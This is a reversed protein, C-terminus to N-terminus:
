ETRIARVSYPELGELSLARSIVEAQHKKFMSTHGASPAAMPVRCSYMLHMSSPLFKELRSRILFWAGQNKPEEQCWELETANSYSALITKVADYPFPYLQEIRIIAIHNLQHERRKELLEYYVKGSCAIVRTVCSSDIDDIESLVPCFQSHSLDELPSVALKHRLLSKPTMVILPVRYSRIMQRRLLHFIQAPTTPVCVQINEQAALQLYRELRASSHEPGMGEYGHPLLMVLGSLRQWKQWASAIFQDIIVQAVNAFDGFQAEWLVLTKPNTMSYGYEFGLAGTESLVSDCNTFPTNYQKAIQALPTHETGTHQDFLTAHRHFFTGRRADEGVLRVGFGDKLLTAYALTEAMGWDLMMEGQAMKQRALLIKKVNRHLDCNEPVTSLRKGLDQLDEEIVTTDAFVSWDQHFYPAWNIEFDNSSRNPVTQVMSEGHDLRERIADHKQDLAAQSVIQKKMLSDAFLARVGPHRDVAHYMLPQTVRPEDVEQHGHRRFGILDVVVDKEFKLRYELALRMIKVAMVPDDANVHFIPAEISKAPGTCYFSSRSDHPNHTTFGVQNNTIIHITGGIDYARTKSMNLSETVIGQGVFAADGHLLVLLAYDTQVKHNFCDQKARAAGMAVPNVFELHSPNFMMSFHIPGSPTVVDSSYGQHYKVDGSLNGHDINGDFIQYLSQPPQGLVNVLVNLRGRHAMGIKVEEFGGKKAQNALDNLMPIVTELGEISFRKQGPYKVDLYKEFGEAVSLADLIEVSQEDEFGAQLNPDEIKNLLWQQEAESDIHMLEVGVSQCYIQQLASFIASLSAEEGPLVGRSLYTQSSNVHGLNHYELTLRPDPKYYANLGLPDLNAQFHGYHRFARILADVREQGESADSVMVPLSHRASRILNERITQHSVDPVASSGISDFYQRWENTVSSPDQLFDEYLSEMYDNEGSLFSSQDFEKQSRVKKVKM